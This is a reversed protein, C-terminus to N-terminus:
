LGACRSTNEANTSNCYSLGACDQANYNRTQLISRQSIGSLALKIDTFAPGGHLLRLAEALVLTAAAAGVFPVAVSKGALEFRGCEDGGLRAYAANGTALREQHEARKATEEASLDPWLEEPTRPNPLTHLSITDFNDKTGGLGSDVIRLFQANALHRRVPNSDFGCLALRPEDERCRFSLDFRREVLRTQFGRKELWASCARTKYSDINDSNFVLGTEVNEPEIRDFDNLFVEAAGSEPYPLTALSWLYANGLHGLGLTWLDRPLFEVPVGLASSDSVDLDPRWLSLAVIRRSAEISIEAFSLFLESMALSAALIGSLTCYEREPLRDVMDAPGVKAIWGDFTVRLSGEGPFASGFVVSHGQEEHNGPDVFAGPGLLCVLAQGFTRKLSPWVLLPSEAVNHDLAIRVAGPFCRNAINAATLVALQLVYSKQVDPGCRLTVSHRQRSALAVDAPTEDRDLFLKSIRSLQM